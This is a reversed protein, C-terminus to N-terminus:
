LWDEAKCHSKLEQLLRTRGRHLRIKVVDVSLGLLEAIENAALSELESLAVITRYSLPLKEICDCYCELKQKEFLQQEPPSLETTVQASKEELEMDVAEHHELSENQVTRKFAPDRLRDLAANTAIRYIWTSLQSDGRFTELTRSIKIFVDQTLDEAEYEGVLRILYRQIKPRFEAHIKQFDLLTEGMTPRGQLADKHKLIM